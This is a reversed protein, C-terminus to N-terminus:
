EYNEGRKKLEDIRNSISDNFNDIEQKWHKILGSKARETYSDWDKCYKEPAQIKKYHDEVRKELSRLLIEDHQHRLSGSEMGPLQDGDAESRM